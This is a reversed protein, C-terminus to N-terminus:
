MRGTYRLFPKVILEIQMYHLRMSMTVHKGQVREVSEWRNVIDIDASSVNMEVARTHSTRRFSCFAQYRKSLLDKSTIDAPFLGRDTDFIDELVELFSDSMDKSCFARGKADLIAPGDKFGISAKHSMLRELSSRVDVGSDTLPACPLLHDRDNSEGKVTGQLTVVLYSGDGSGWHRHLGELDLLLGEKGRLSLVYLVVAYSHFVIWRNLDRPSPAGAIRLGVEDLVRLYLEVSMGKNPRWDQGMRGKMGLNFRYFWFSGCPDTSFRQYNGKADGLSTAEL